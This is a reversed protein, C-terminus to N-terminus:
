EYGWTVNRSYRGTKIDFTPVDKELWVVIAPFPVQSLVFEETDPMVLAPGGYVAAPMQAEITLSKHKETITGIPQIVPGLIRGIVVQKAVVDAPNEFSVSISEHIAGTVVSAPRDNYEQNFTITGATDNRGNVSSLPTPHLTVGSYDQARQLLSASIGSWYAKANTYRTSQLAHTTNDRVELGRITGEISVTTRGTDDKRTNVTFEEVAPAPLSTADFVLWTETISYSGALKNVHEARIFNFAQPNATYSNNDNGDSINAPDMLNLIGTPNLRTDDIGLRANVWQQANQWAGGNILVGTSDYSRKGVASLTHTLRYTRGVEDAAEITWDEQAKDILFGGFDDEGAGIIASGQLVDAELTITYDMTEFWLGEPIQIDKLRPNCKIPADSAPYVPDWELVKGEQAFLKRLAEQKRFMASLRHAADISEDPPYTGGGSTWFTGQSNPSGKWSMLKGHITIDYVSGIITGDESPVYRKHFTVLPAPILSNGDYLVGM